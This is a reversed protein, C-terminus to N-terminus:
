NASREMGRGDRSPGFFAAGLAEAAAEDADTTARAYVGLTLRPASHGLRAQATKLDVGALVLRTANARRLDHFGAGRYHKRKTKPDKTV